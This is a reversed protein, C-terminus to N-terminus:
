KARHCTPLMEAQALPGNVSASCREMSQLLSVSWTRTNGCPPLRPWRPCTERARRVRLAQRTAGASGTQRTPFTIVPWARQSRQSRLHLLEQQPDHDDGQSADHHDQAEEEQGDTHKERWCVSVGASMGYKMATNGISANTPTTPAPTESTRPRRREAKAKPITPTPAAAM